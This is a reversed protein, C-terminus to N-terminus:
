TLEFAINNLFINLTLQFKSPYNQYQPSNRLIASYENWTYHTTTWYYVVNQHVNRTWARVNKHSIKISHFNSKTQCITPVFILVKDPVKRWLPSLNWILPWEYIVNANPPPSPTVGTLVFAFLPPTRVRLVNVLTNSLYM